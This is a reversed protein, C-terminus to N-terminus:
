VHGGSDSGGSNVTKVQRRAGKASAPRDLKTESGLGEDEVSAPPSPPDEESPGPPQQDLPPRTRSPQLFLLSANFM